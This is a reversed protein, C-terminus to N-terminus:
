TSRRLRAMKEAGRSTGTFTTKAKRLRNLILAFVPDRPGFAIRNKIGFPKIGIPGFINTFDDPDDM